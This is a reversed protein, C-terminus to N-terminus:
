IMQDLMEAVDPATDDWYHTHAGAGICMEKTSGDVAEHIPQPYRGDGGKGNTRNYWENLWLSRGVYDGSRYMNVWSSLGLKGPDPGKEEKTSKPADVAPTPAPLPGLGNDPEARVWDYLYPFFRNLLQRIPSGMTLLQLEIKDVGAEGAFGYRVLAPDFRWDELDGADVPRPQNQGVYLYRLLDASILSGLSHAVIVVSDYGHGEADRHSAVYRLTSVFREFIKARPTADSPSARLYTDVDLITELASSGYKVMAVVAAGGMALLPEDVIWRTINALAVAITHLWGTEWFGLVYVVPYALFISCWFLFTVVATGDLGRSLWSGLRETQVNTSSRPPVKKDRQPYTELLASPVAWWVLLFLGLSVLAMTIPVQYGLGWGLISHFYDRFVEPEHADPIFHVKTLWLLLANGDNEGGNLGFFPKQVWDALKFLAAWIVPTVLLFFATPMALAFRSTRVAARLRAQKPKDAGALRWVLSGLMLAVIAFFSITLWSIRIAAVVFEVLWFSAQTVDGGALYLLLVFAAVSLGYGIWGTIQVGNRYSEYKSLIFAIIPLGLFVWCELASVIQPATGGKVSALAYFGGAGIAVPLVATVAWLWPSRNKWLIGKYLFFAAGLVGLAGLSADFAMKAVDGALRSSVAPIASLVVVLLLLKFLPLFIQLVRVAWRQAWLYSWWLVERFGGSNGNEGAGSDVTLRSLSGLHLLLSFFSLFFGVISSDPHALDAWLVEYIDVKKKAKGAVASREGELRTTIYVNGDAGGEYKHLLLQTYDNGTQTGQWVDNESRNEVARRGRNEQTAASALYEAFKDSQEQYSARKKKGLVIPGKVRQLPIQIGTARFPEYSRDADKDIAPLSLLLNAMANETEGAPHRAIGHVGIVAVRPVRGSGAGDSGARESAGTNVSTEVPGISEMWEMSM